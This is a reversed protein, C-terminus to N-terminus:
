KLKDRIEKLVKLEASDTKTPKKDKANAPLNSIKNIFKVLLFICVAIILFDIINQIFSGIGIDVGNGNGILAPAHIKWGNFNFGGLLIGIIPMLIDNVLSSVIKGFAGGVIVGVALDAVNGRSIFKKFEEILKKM